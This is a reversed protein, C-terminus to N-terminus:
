KTVVPQRFHERCIYCSHPLKDEDDEGEESSILYEDEKAEKLKGAEWDREIEWGHKYDTRDHM